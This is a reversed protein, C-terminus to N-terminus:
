RHRRKHSGLRVKGRTAQIQQAILAAGDTKYTVKELNQVCQDEEHVALDKQHLM